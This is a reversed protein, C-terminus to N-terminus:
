PSSVAVNRFRVAAEGGSFNRTIGFYRGHTPVSAEIVRPAAGAPTRRVRIVRGDVTVQLTEWRGPVVPEGGVTTISTSQGNDPPVDRLELNGTARLIVLLGHSPGPVRFGYPFDNDRAVVLGAHDRGDAPLADFCMDASIRYPDPGIPCMSGLVVSQRATTDALGLSGDANWVPAAERSGDYPLDGPRARGTAFGDTRSGTRALALYTWSSCMFGRVGLATLADVQHRRRVVWGIVPVGTAVAARVLAAQADSLPEGDTRIGLADSRRAADAVDTGTATDDLYNWVALGAQRAAVDGAETHHQKFVTSSQLGRETIARLVGDVAARDKPEVFLVARGGIRDLVEDLLPIPAPEWGPGVSHRMDVRLEALEAATMRAIEGPAGDCTRALDADHHCVLVGDATRRVSVEIARAGHEVANRYATLTHEPAEDGSGRHAVFFRDEALLERASRSSSAPTACGVTTVAAVFGGLVAASRLM